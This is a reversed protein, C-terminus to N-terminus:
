FFLFLALLVLVGVFIATSVHARLFVIMNTTRAVVTLVRSKHGTLDVVRTISTFMAVVGAADLLAHKGGNRLIADRACSIRSADAACHCAFGFENLEIANKIPGFRASM